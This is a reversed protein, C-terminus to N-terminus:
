DLISLRVWSGQAREDEKSSKKSGRGPANLDVIVRATGREQVQKWLKPDVKSDKNEQAAGAASWGNLALFTLLLVALTKM